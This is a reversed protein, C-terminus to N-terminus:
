PTTSLADTAPIVNIVNATQPDFLVALNAQPYILVRDGAEALIFPALPGPDTVLQVTPIEDTPLYPFAAVAAIIKQAAQGSLLPNPTPTDLAATAQRALFHAYALPAVSLLLACLAASM